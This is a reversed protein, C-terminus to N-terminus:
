GAVARDRVHGCYICAPRHVCIVGGCEPCKWRERELAVFAPLGVEWITRLNAIMSMGYKTRYRMDLRRLRPCPFRACGSCFDRGSTKSVDCNRIQCVLCYHTKTADVSNCGMCRNKKRRLYAGCLGCNMGCPAILALQPSGDLALGDANMTLRWRKGGM